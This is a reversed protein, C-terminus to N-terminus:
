GHKAGFRKETKEIIMNVETTDIGHQKALQQLLKLGPLNVPVVIKTTYPNSEVQIDLEAKYSFVKKFHIYGLSGGLLPLIVIIVILFHFFHPFMLQLFPLNTIALYYIASGWGILAVPLSLYTSYGIRFYYWSRFILRKLNM